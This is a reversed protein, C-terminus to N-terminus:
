LFKLPLKKLYFSKKQKREENRGREHYEYDEWKFANFEFTKFFNNVSFLAFSSPSSIFLTFSM